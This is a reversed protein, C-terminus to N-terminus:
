SREGLAELYVEETRRVAGALSFGEATRAAREGLRSRLGPDRILSLLAKALAEPDESPVLLGDEGETVVESVGGVSTAVPPISLTMAELLSVPLGEYRSPLCFVDFARMLRAAEPRYGLLLVHDGLGARAIEERVPGPDAPLGVFAFLAEPAEDVVRRAARVLVAHGKKPTLGGVTGVVMRDAPLELSARAEERSLAGTRVAASDVGNVIVRVPPGSRSRVSAAVSGSVAIVADNWRFTAANMRRTAPRYREWTNHETYVLAPRAPRPLGRLALRAGIAAYPLHAHVLDYRRERILRRLRGVWGPSAARRVGLCTVPVGAAELEGVLHDKWPLLYCAEYRFRDTDVHRAAAVLLREAGGPGLGKILWLVRHPPPM